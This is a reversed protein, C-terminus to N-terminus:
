ATNSSRPPSARGVKDVLHSGSFHVIVLRVWARNDALFSDLATYPCEESKDWPRCGPNAIGVVFKGYKGRFLANYINMGHSDGLVIAAPGYQEACKAFRTRFATDIKPVWYNCDNDGMDHTLNGGTNRRILDYVQQSVVDSRKVYASEFGNSLVGALGISVLCISGAASLLVIRQRRKM